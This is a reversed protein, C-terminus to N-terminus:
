EAAASQRAPMLQEIAQIVMDPAANQVMHGVGPLEILRANKVERVFSRAHIDISVTDDADGHIVIVPATIEHYRPQLAAVSARLTVMDWGNALFERPRALLPLATDGVYGEPMTQPLFARRAGPWLMALAVPLELTHAFLPGVLPVTALRHYWAV